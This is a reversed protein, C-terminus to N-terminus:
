SVQRFDWLQSAAPRPTLGLRSSELIQGEWSLGHPRFPYEGSDVPLNCVFVFGGQVEGLGPGAQALCKLNM